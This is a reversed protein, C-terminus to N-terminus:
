HYKVLMSYIKMVSTSNGATLAMAIGSGCVLLFVGHNLVKTKSQVHSPCDTGIYLFSSVNSFMLLSGFGM